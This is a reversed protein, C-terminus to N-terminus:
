NWNNTTQCIIYNLICRFFSNKHQKLTKSAALYYFSKSFINRENPLSNCGTKTICYCRIYSNTIKIITM